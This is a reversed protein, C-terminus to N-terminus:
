REMENHRRKNRETVNLKGQIPGIKDLNKMYKTKKPPPHSQLHSLKLKRKEYYM